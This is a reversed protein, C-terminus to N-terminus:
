QQFLGKADLQEPADPPLEARLADEIVLLRGLKEVPVARNAAWDLPEGPSLTARSRGPLERCFDMGDAYGLPRVDTTIFYTGAPWYVAFGAAALGAGFFDRKVRLDASISAYFDDPLALAEAVAYQFPGGSVYTLFQKVTRVAAVLEPSGTVWGIKWGTFSFMKAASSITVTRESMGPLSVIPLHSGEYVMHEYVEDSVVLLDHELALPAVGELETRTLM